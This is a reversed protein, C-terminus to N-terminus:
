RCVSARLHLARLSTAPIIYMMLSFVSTPKAQINVSTKTLVKLEKSHGANGLCKYLSPDDRFAISIPLQLLSSINKM